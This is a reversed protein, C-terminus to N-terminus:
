RRHPQQGCSEAGAGLDGGDREGRHGGVRRRCVVVYVCVCVCVCTRTFNDCVCMHTDVECISAGCSGAPVRTGRSAGGGRWLPVKAEAAAAPVHQQQGLGQRGQQQMALQQHHSAPLPTAAAARLHAPLRLLAHFTLYEAVTSTGPLVIDQAVYGCVQACVCVYGYVCVCVHAHLVCM